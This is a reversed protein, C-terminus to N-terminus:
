LSQAARLAAFLILLINILLNNNKSKIRETIGQTIKKWLLALLQAQYRFGSILVDMFSNNEIFIGMRALNLSKALLHPKSNSTPTDKYDLFPPNDPYPTCDLFGPCTMESIMKKEHDSLLQMLNDNESPDLKAYETVDTKIDETEEIGLWRILSDMSRGPNQLYEDTYIITFSEPYKSKLLQGYAVSQAWSYCFTFLLKELYASGKDLNKKKYSAFNLYPNRVIQILRVRDPGFWEILTNFHQELFPTLEGIFYKDPFYNEKFAQLLIVYLDKASNGKERIMERTLNWQASKPCSNFFYEINDEFNGRKTYKDESFYRFFTFETPPFAISIRQALGSSITTKGCRPLGGIAIIKGTKM